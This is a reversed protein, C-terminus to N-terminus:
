SFSNNSKEIDDIEKKNTSDQNDKKDKNELISKEYFVVHNSLTQIYKKQENRFSEKSRKLSNQSFKCLDIDVGPNDLYYAGLKSILHSRYKSSDEKINISKEFEKM